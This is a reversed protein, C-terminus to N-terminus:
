APQVGAARLMPVWREFEQRMYIAASEPTSDDIVTGGGDEIRQRIAPVRVARNAEANMRQLIPAPTGAPAWIMQWTYAEWGPLGVEVASPVDPLQRMRERSSVALGRLKGGAILSLASQGIEMVFAIRGAILDPVAPANGRYHVAPMRLGAQALFLESSMHGATGQGGSGYPIQDPRARVYAVFEQLTTAPVVDPNIVLVTPIRALLAIPAFDRVPDFPLSRFMAPTLALSVTGYLMTYGDPPAKAVVDAGSVVGAGTRNEVVVRQGLQQSMQDFIIRGVVDTPGGASFPIIMRIPRNPWTEQAGAAVPVASAVAFSGLCRRSLMTHLEQGTTTTTVQTRRKKCRDKPRQGDNEFTMARAM